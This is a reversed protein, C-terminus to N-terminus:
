GDINICVFGYMWHKGITSPLIAAFHDPGTCAHLSGAIAGSKAVELIDLSNYSLSLLLLHGVFVFIGCLFGLLVAGKVTGDIMKGNPLLIGSEM